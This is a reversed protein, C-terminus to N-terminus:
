WQDTNYKSQYRTACNGNCMSIYGELVFRNNSANWTLTLPTFDEILRAGNCIQRDFYFKQKIKGNM